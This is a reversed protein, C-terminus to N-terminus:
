DVARTREFPVEYLSQKELQVQNWLNQYTFDKGPVLRNPWLDAMPLAVFANAFLEPRPLEIGDVVGTMDGYTVVDIDLTRPSFKPGSRVRGNADEIKKLKQIIREVSLSTKIVAILNLFPSGDFGVAASEYVPSITLQGFAQELANLGSNIHQYRSINSGLSLAVEFIQESM